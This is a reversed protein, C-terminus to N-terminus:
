RGKPQGPKPQKGIDRGGFGLMRRFQAGVSIGELPLELDQDNWDGTEQSRAWRRTQVISEAFARALDERDGAALRARWQGLEAVMNDIWRMTNQANALCADAVAQPDDALYTSAYFQGGALKRMEKWSASESASRVLAGAMISPLHDVAAVLGDHEAADVFFPLGGLAEVLDTAAQVGASSTRTDSILCFIKREFLDAQAATPDQSAAVYIPHGGVFSVGAPLLEAAWSMVQSKVSATDVIVCGAKLDRKVAALTSRVEDPGVALLIRDAGRVANILNWETRDVAGLKKAQGALDAAKDHGVVVVKDTYKHLALGASAGVLGLGVITVQMKEAMRYKEGSTELITAPRFQV